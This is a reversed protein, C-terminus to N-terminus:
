DKEDSAVVFFGYDPDDLVPDIIAMYNEEPLIGDPTAACTKKVLDIIKSRDDKKAIKATFM